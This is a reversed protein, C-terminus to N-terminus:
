NGYIEGCLGAFRSYINIVKNGEFPFGWAMQNKMGRNPLFRLHRFVCVGNNCTKCYGTFFIPEHIKRLLGFATEIFIGFRCWDEMTGLMRYLFKKYPSM